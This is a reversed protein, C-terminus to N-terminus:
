LSLLLFFSVLSDPTSNRRRNAHMNQWVPKYLDPMIAYEAAFLFVPNFGQLSFLRFRFDFFACLFANNAKCSKVPVLTRKQLVPIMCVTSNSGRIRKALSHAKYFLGILQKIKNLIFSGHFGALIPLCRSYFQIAWYRTYHMFVRVIFSIGCFNFPRITSFYSLLERM